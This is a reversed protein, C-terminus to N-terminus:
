EFLRDFHNFDFLQFDRQYLSLLRNLAVPSLGKLLNKAFTANQFTGKPYNVVEKTVHKEEIPIDTLNLQLCIHKM